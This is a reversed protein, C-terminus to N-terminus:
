KSLFQLVKQTLLEPQDAHVWHGAGKIIEVTSHPFEAKIPALDGDQIYSSHEGKIFLGPGEFLPHPSSVKDLIHQYSQELLAINMKWEYGGEKKRQLNKLLFQVVGENKLQDKLFDYIEQRDQRHAADVKRIADLIEEHGGSYTKNCIDVVVMKEVMNGHDFAFQMVTKGGMSHGMLHAKYIWNQEMFTALDQALTPYDFRDTFPSKGHDRQDILYVMFGEAAIKKAVSQWNDLMGFLGHLIIVPFGEGLVKHNLEMEVHMFFPAPAGM